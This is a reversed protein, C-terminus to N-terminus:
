MSARVRVWGRRAAMWAAAWWGGSGPRWGIRTQIARLSEVEAEGVEPVNVYNASTGGWVGAGNRAGAGNDRFGALIIEPNSPHLAAGYFMLTAFSANHNQWTNGLDTTSWVGGDNGVVLRNGIWVLAHDDPHAGPLDTWTASLGCNDCRWMSREAGGAFLTNPDAPTVSIVNSYDCKTPGCYGGEMIAATPVTIWAPSAAWANDTRYLGLLGVVNPRTNSPLAIGAYLTNPNSPAIALEIRGTAEVTATSVGWPGPIVTWTQGGDTSRYVGNPLGDKDDNNVGPRNRYTGIAAYQNNFNTPDTELATVFGPLTRVWTAGGDTSRVVGFPPSSPMGEHSDRGFGGRTVTALLINANAPHVRIRRVAARAFTSVAIVNWTQGGDTSKLMGLGAKTFGPGTAEGTGAYIIQPNSPAFALAGIALTPASDAIPRFSAGADRSEWIGGNGIGVLWHAADGPDIAISSVRGAFRGALPAPGIGRWVPATGPTGVTLTFTQSASGGASDAVLITFRYVGPSLPTGALEGSPSLVVGPPLSGAVVTWTYPAAGAASLAQSFPSNLGAALAPDGLVSLPPGSVPTTAWDLAYAGRGFTFAVIRNTTPNIKLDFVPVSPLGTAPGLFQWGLGGDISHWVGADTGVYVSNLVAPDLAVVNNPLNVPPSVDIWFPAAATWDLTKFLHGPKTTIENFGSFAVYLTRPANPDFALSSVARACYGPGTGCVPLIQRPDPNIWINGGDTTVRVDGAMTGYGYTNCTADTLSFGVSAIASGGPSNANWSPAEALFFNNSRFLRSSGTLFYRQRGPM